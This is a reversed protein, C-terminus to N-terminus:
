CLIDKKENKKVSVNSILVPQKVHIVVTQPM